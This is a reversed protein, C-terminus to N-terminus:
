FNNKKNLLALEKAYEEAMKKIEEMTLPPNQRQIRLIHYAQFANSQAMQKQQEQFM